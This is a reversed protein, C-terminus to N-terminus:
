STPTPLVPSEGGFEVSAIIQGKDNIAKAEFLTIGSNAPILNQLNQCVGKTIIVAAGCGRSGVIVGNNNIAYPFVNEGIDTM